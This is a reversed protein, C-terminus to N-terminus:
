REETVTDSNGYDACGALFTATTMFALILTFAKKM